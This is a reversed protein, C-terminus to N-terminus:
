AGAEEDDPFHGLYEARFTELMADPDPATLEPAPEILAEVEELDYRRHGSPLRRPILDGRAELNYLTRLSVGLRERAESPTILSAM